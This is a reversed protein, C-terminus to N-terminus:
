VSAIIRSFNSVNLSAGGVLVGDIDNALMLEKANLDNVSGGYLIHINNATAEDFLGVLLKRIFTHMESAQQVTATKGTGIAWVPEYAIMIDKVKDNPISNLVEVLQDKVFNLYNGEERLKLEEGVCLIPTIKNQLLALVKEECALDTEGFYKRRESHGVLCYDIGLSNLMYASIEGTFAGEDKPYSNQAGFYIGNTKKLQSFEALYVHPPIIIVQSKEVDITLKLLENVLSRAENAAKNMKWNGAIIKKRM